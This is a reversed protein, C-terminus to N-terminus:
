IELLPTSTLECSARARAHTSALALFSPPPPFPFTKFCVVGGVWGGGLFVVVVVFLFCVFLFVADCAVVNTRPLVPKNRHQKNLYTTREHKTQTERKAGKWSYKMGYIRGVVRRM